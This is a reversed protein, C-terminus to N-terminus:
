HFLITGWIQPLTIPIIFLIWLITPRIGADLSTPPLGDDEKKCKECIELSNIPCCVGRCFYHADKKKANNFIEQIDTKTSQKLELERLGIVIEVEHGIKKEYYSLKQPTYRRVTTWINRPTAFDTFFTLVILDTKPLWHYTYREGPIDSYQYLTDYDLFLEPLSTYHTKSVGILYTKKGELDDPMKFYKHRFKIKIM